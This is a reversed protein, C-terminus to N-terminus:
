HGSTSRHIKETILNNIITHEQDVLDFKESFNRLILVIERKDSKDFSRHYYVLKNKQDFGYTTTKFEGSLSYIKVNSYKKNRFVVTTDNSVLSLTDRKEYVSKIITNKRVTFTGLEDFDYVDPSLEKVDILIKDTIDINNNLLYADFEFQGVPSKKKCSILLFIILLLKM